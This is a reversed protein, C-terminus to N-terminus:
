EGMEKALEKLLRSTHPYSLGVREAIERVTLNEGDDSALLDLLRRRTDEGQALLRERRNLVGRSVKNKARANYKQNVNHPTHFLGTGM